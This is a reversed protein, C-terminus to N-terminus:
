ARIAATILATAKDAKDVPLAITVGPSGSITLLRTDAMDPRPHVAPSVETTYSIPITQTRTRRFPGDKSAIIVRDGLIMVLCLHAKSSDVLISPFALRCTDTANTVSKVARTMQEFLTTGMQVTDDEGMARGYEALGRVVTERIHGHSTTM